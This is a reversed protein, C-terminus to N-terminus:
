TGQHYISSCVIQTKREAFLALEHALYRLYPERGITLGEIERLAKRAFSLFDDRLLSEYTSNMQQTRQGLARSAGVEGATIQDGGNESAAPTLQRDAAPEPESAM